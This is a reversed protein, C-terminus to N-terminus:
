LYYNRFRKILNLKKRSCVDPKDDSLADCVVAILDNCAKDTLDRNGKGNITIWPIFSHPPELADTKKAMEYELNPGLNGTVCKKLQRRLDLDETCKEIIKKQTPYNFACNVFKIRSETNNVLNIYCTQVMNGYCEDPGHQCTFTYRDRVGAYHANGYPILEVNVYEPMELYTHLLQEQVFQQSDPCLSEYYVGIDVINSATADNGLLSAVLVVLGLIAM